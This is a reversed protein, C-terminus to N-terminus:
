EARNTETELRIFAAIMAQWVAEAVDPSLGAAAAQERRAAIVQAFCRNATVRYPKNRLHKLLSRGIHLADPEIVARPATAFWYHLNDQSFWPFIGRPYAALLRAPALDASVCVLGDTQGLAPRPDPFRHNGPELFPIHM